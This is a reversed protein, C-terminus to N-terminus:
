KPCPNFECNRNPNRGVASGDPCIKVEQTCILGTVETVVKFGYSESPIKDRLDPLDELVKELMVKICPSGDCEGIGVGVVGPENILYHTLQEKAEEITLKEVFHKGDPTWCQRPYSEGVPYGAQACEEFSNIEKTSKQFFTQRAGIFYGAIVAFIVVGIVIIISICRKQNMM